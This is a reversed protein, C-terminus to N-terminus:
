TCFFACFVWCCTPFSFCEAKTLRMAAASSDDKEMDIEPLKSKKIMFALVLLIVALIIYPTIVRSSLENLLTAKVAPDTTAADRSEIDHM